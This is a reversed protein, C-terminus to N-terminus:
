KQFPLNCMDSLIVNQNNSKCINIFEPCNGIGTFDLNERNM